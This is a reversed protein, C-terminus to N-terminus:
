QRTGSQLEAIKSHAYMEMVTALIMIGDFDKAGVM